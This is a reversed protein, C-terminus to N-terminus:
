FVCVMGSSSAQPQERVRGSHPSMYVCRCVYADVCVWACVKSLYIISLLYVFPLYITFLCIRSPCISLHYMITLYITLYFLYISSLFGRQAIFSKANNRLLAANQM